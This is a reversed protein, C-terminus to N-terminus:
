PRAPPKPAGFFGFFGLAFPPSPGFFGEASQRGHSASGHGHLLSSDLADKMHSIIGGDTEM